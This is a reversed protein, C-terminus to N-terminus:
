TRHRLAARIKSRAPSARAPRSNADSTVLLHTKECDWSDSHQSPSRREDMGPVRDTRGPSAQAVPLRGDQGQDFRPGMSWWDSGTFERISMRGNELLRFQRFLQDRMAPTFGNRTRATYILRDREYYGIILADFTKAAVTYGGIMFEQGQNIRLKELRGLVPRITRITRRKRGLTFDHAKVPSCSRSPQCRTHGHLPGAGHAKPRNEAGHARAQRRFGDLKLQYAWRASDDPLQDIRLLLM